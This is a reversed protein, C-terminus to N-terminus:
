FLRALRTSDKTSVKTLGSLMLYFYIAMIENALWVTRRTASELYLERESLLRSLDLTQKEALIWTLSDGSQKSKRYRSELGRSHRRLVCYDDIWPALCQHRMTVRKVLCVQRGSGTETPGQPVHRLVRGCFGASSSYQM